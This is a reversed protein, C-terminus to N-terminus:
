LKQPLNDTTPIYWEPAKTAQQQSAPPYEAAQQTQFNIYPIWFADILIM